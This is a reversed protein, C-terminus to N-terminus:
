TQKLSSTFSHLYITSPSTTTAKQKQEDRERMYNEEELRRVEAAGSTQQQPAALPYRSDRLQVAYVPNRGM